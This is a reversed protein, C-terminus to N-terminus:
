LFIVFLDTDCLTDFNLTLHMEQCLHNQIIIAAGKRSELSVLDGVNRPSTKAVVGNECFVRLLIVVAIQNERWFSVSENARAKEYCLLSASTGQSLKSPVSTQAATAIPLRLELQSRHDDRTIATVAFIYSNTHSYLRVQMHSRGRGGGM